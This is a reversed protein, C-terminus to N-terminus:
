KPRPNQSLPTAWPGLRKKGHGWGSGMFTVPELKTNSLLRFLLCDVNARVENQWRTRARHVMRSCSSLRESVDDRTHGASGQPIDSDLMDVLTPVLELAVRVM